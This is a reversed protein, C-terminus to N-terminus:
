GRDTQQLVQKLSDSLIRAESELAKEGDEHLSESLFLIFGIKVSLAHLRANSPRASDYDGHAFRNRTVVLDRILSVPDDTILRQYERPLEGLLASLRERLSRYHEQLGLERCRYEAYRMNQIFQQEIEQPTSDPSILACGFWEDHKDTAM